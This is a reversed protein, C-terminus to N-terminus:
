FREHSEVELVQRGIDAKQVVQHAIHGGNDLGAVVLDFAELAEDLLKLSPLEPPAGLAQIGILKGQPEFIEVGIDSPLNELDLRM